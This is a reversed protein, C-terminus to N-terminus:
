EAVVEGAMVWSLEEGADDGATDGTGAGTAVGRMREGAGRVGDAALTTFM